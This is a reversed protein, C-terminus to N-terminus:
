DPAIRRRLLGSLWGWEEINLLYAAIAFVAVSLGGAAGVLQLERLFDGSGVTDRVVPLALAATIGMLGAALATKSATVFLRRDSLGDMRRHLLFASIAAHTVHKVSDAVMLSYLGM